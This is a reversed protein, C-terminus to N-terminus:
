DGDHTEKQTLDYRGFQYGIIASIVMVFALDIAYIM